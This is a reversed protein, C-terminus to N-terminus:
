HPSLSEAFRALQAEARSIGEQFGQIGAEALAQRVCFRAATHDGLEFLAEGRSMRLLTRLMGALARAGDTLDEAWALASAACREAAAADGDALYQRTRTEMALLETLVDDAARALGAARAAHSRAADAAGSRDLALALNLVAIAESSLDGARAALGPALELHVLAETLRGEETLVWGLLARVRSEADPDGVREAAELAQELLPVWGDRVQRTFYPWQLVVLRWARDDYGAARAAGVAAALNEREAAYWRLADDRSSFERVASPRHSDDPLTCCPKDEPAAAAAAALATATYHDLLRLLSSGEDAVLGRAYLRVLDHLGYRGPVYELLLHAGTLRDLAEAATHPSSDMLAAAAYRDLDSGPLAGLRTFLRAAGVPLAQVTFGLAAAVGADECDDLSLLSLRRQEDALEGALHSIRWHPRTTLQAAAIRLALPLRDCLAALQAAAEPESEVRGDGVATALLATADAPGLVELPVPRALEDVILGGLRLRSTVLAASRSGGPLLPRVQDASRANDLVVLVAREGTLERYLAAAAAPSPPVAGPPVGLALLFETVAQAPEVPDGAFGRLDAFLVGHPFHEANRHAWHLALATKGVGAAGTVLAIAGDGMVRDLADLEGDRGRFGRVGRPLLRPVARERVSRATQASRAMEARHAAQAAPRAHAVHASQETHASPVVEAASPRGSLEGRLVAEYARRLGPGPDVGLEDALLGRTRHYWDLAEAQRGARSLAGMLAEALSERLPHAQAEPKLLAAATTSDGLQGYAEALSEVTALRREELAQAAAQQAASAVTGTLAPGRWLTLAERLMAATEAPQKRAKGRRVLEEFRYVDLLEQPMELMYAPGQTILQVGHAGAGAGVLQARLRSVHGQVVTRAHTPPAGCWAMDFLRELPVASNARLLLAALVSRRKAPGLALDGADTTARIAGLM